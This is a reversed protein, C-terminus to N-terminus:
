RRIVPAPPVANDAAMEVLKARLAEAWKLENETARKMFLETEEGDRDLGSGNLSVGAFLGRTRSYSVVQAELKADTAASAERGVPGAAISADAGFTLKRKGELVRDLTKADRFVFVLDSREVGAQFGVSGGGFHVFTPQGWKGNADKVFVVGHGGRGAVIFGAKLVNPVIAIGKAESLIAPPIGKLPIKSLEDLVEYADAMTRGPSPPAAFTQSSAAVVLALSALTFRFM